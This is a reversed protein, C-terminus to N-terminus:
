KSSTKYHEIWIENAKNYVYKKEIKFNKKNINNENWFDPNTEAKIRDAEYEFILSLRMNAPRMNAFILSAFRTGVERRNQVAGNVSVTDRRRVYADFMGDCHLTGGVCRLTHDPAELPPPRMSDYINRGITTM